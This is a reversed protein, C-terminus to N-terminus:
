PLHPVSEQAQAAALADKIDSFVTHKDGIGTKLMKQQVKANVGSFYVRIGKHTAEKVFTHLRALGAADVIPVFRFRLIVAKHHQSIEKNLNLLHHVSGFFMPGYIEFIIIRSSYEGLEENFLVEDSTKTAALPTIEISDSMRKMFLVTALLFGAPIAITLDTFLTLFFTVLLILTEHFNIKCSNIFTKVEAMNWATIILIGALTAMPIHRVVPMAVVYILLLTLAHVIGSLPTRGGNKINTATRAIAGTAPFGGFLPLIINATGQAILEMNSRHKGGIMSDAVVASLLSELSGLIAISLAPVVLSAATALSPVPLGPKPFSFALSGYRSAITEVPLHFIWAGLTTITIAAFAPPIRTSFRPLVVIIAITACGLLLPWFSVSGINAIYVSWKGIFDGPIAATQMGTFDKIQTSFIIVAIATTFGTILTHPIYKLLSGLSFAGMLFMFVGAMLTAILLGDYGHASVIGAIIVVFAGTPGGIQVRSGGLFSIIFGGIIGTLIGKDPSIGSAIAFAISLPLAVIGVIIGSIIEKRFRDPTIGKRLISFLKPTFESNM